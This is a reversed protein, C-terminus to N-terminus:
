EDPHGLRMSNKGHLIAEYHMLYAAMRRSIALHPMKFQVLAFSQHLTLRCEWMLYMICVACHQGQACFLLVRGGGQRTSSILDMAKQRQLSLSTEVENFQCQLYHLNQAPAEFGESCCNLLTTIGLATLLNLDEAAKPTGLMLFPLIELPIDPHSPIFPDAGESFGEPALAPPLAPREKLLPFNRPVLDKPDELSSYLGSAKSDSFGSAPPSFAAPAAPAAPPPPVAPPAPVAPAAPVPPAAARIPAPAAPPAAKVPSPATNAVAFQSAGNPQMPFDSLEGQVRVPQNSVRVPQDSVAGEFEASLRALRATLEERERKERELKRMTADYKIKLVPSSITPSSGQMDSFAPSQPPNAMAPSPPISDIGSM